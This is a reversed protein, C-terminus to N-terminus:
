KEAVVRVYSGHRHKEKRAPTKLNVAGDGYQIQLCLWKVLFKETKTKRRLFFFWTWNEARKVLIGISQLLKRRVRESIAIYESVFNVNRPPLLLFIRLNFWPTSAAFIITKIVFHFAVIALSLSLGPSYTQKRCLSTIYYNRIERTCTQTIWETNKNGGQRCKPPSSLSHLHLLSPFGKSYIALPASTIQGVKWFVLPTLFPFSSELSPWRIGSHSSFFANLSPSIFFETEKSFHIHRVHARAPADSM